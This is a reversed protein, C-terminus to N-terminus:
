NPDWVEGTGNKKDLFDFFGFFEMFCPIAVVTSLIFISRQRNLSYEKTRCAKGIIESARKRIDVSNSKLAKKLYDSPHQQYTYVPGAILFDISGFIKSLLSPQECTLKQLTEDYGFNSFNNEIVKMCENIRAKHKNLLAEELRSVVEEPKIIKYRNVQHFEIKEM